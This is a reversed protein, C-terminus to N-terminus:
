LFAFAAELQEQTGAAPPAKGAGDKASPAAGGGPAREPAQKPTPAKPPAPRRPPEPTQGGTTPATEGLIEGGYKKMLKALRGRGSDMIADLRAELKAADREKMRAFERCQEATYRKGDRTEYGDNESAEWFFRADERAKDLKPRADKVTAREEKTLAEPLVPLGQLDELERREREGKLGELEERLKAIEEERDKNRATLKDIRRQMRTTPDKEADTSEGDGNEADPNSDGGAGNQAEAKAEADDTMAPPTPEGAPSPDGGQVTTDTADEEM